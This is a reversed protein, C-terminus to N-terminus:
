KIRRLNFGTLDHAAGKPKIPMRAQLCDVSVTPEHHSSGMPLGIFEFPTDCDVCKLNGPMDRLSSLVEAPMAHAAM